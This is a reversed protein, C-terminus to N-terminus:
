VRASAMEQYVPIAVDIMHARLTVPLDNLDIGQREIAVVGTSSAAHNTWGNETIDKDSYGDNANMYSREWGDVMKHSFELGSVLCAAGLVRVPEAAFDGGDVVASRESQHGSRYHAGIEYWSTKSFGNSIGSNELFDSAQQIYPGLQQQTLQDAGPEIIIDNAIRTLLSAIQVQPDRISWIVGDSVEMWKKFIDPSLNRAMNKSIVTVQEDTRTLLPATADLIHGAAAEVDHKMRNFPENVYVSLGDGENLARSLATSVSRPVAEVHVIKLSGSEVHQQLTEFNGM